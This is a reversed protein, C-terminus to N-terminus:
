FKMMLMASYKKKLFMEFLFDFYDIKNGDQAVPWCVFADGLSLYDVDDHPGCKNSTTKRRLQLM